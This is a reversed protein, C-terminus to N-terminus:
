QCRLYASFHVSEFTILQAAAAAFWILSSAPLSENRSGGGGGGGCSDNISKVDQSRAILNLTYLSVAPAHFYGIRANNASACLVTSRSYTVPIHSCFASRTRHRTRASFAFRCLANESARKQYTCQNCARFFPFGIQIEKRGRILRMQFPLPHQPLCFSGPEWLSQKLIKTFFIYM